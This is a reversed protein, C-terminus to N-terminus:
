DWSRRRRTPARLTDAKSAPGQDIVQFAVTPLTQLTSALSAAPSNKPLRVKVTGRDGDAITTASEHMHVKTTSSVNITLSM